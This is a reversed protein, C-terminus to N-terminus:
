IGLRGLFEDRSIYKGGFMEVLNTVMQVDMWEFGRGKLEQILQYLACKSAGTELHFMSEASFYAGRPCHSLVGYIGGVLIGEKWVELSLAKGQQYLGTYASIMEPLIWTGAQGKRAQRRCEEMVQTFARNVSIEAEEWDKVARMVSRSFQQDAFDIVGRQEPSFWLWPLGPQPWPFIGKEYAAVLAEATMPGGVAVLGEPSTLRPDPFIIM